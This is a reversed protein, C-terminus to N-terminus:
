LAPVLSLQIGLHNLLLLQAPALKRDRSQDDPVYRAPLVTLDDILERSEGVRYLADLDVATTGEVSQIAAIIEASTVGRDFQRKDFAFTQQLKHEIAALVQEALYRPDLLVRAEVNFLQRDYSNIRVQQIPDRALDIAQQLRQYLQSIPLIPAGEIGAITIHVLQTAGNWIASAQAKGIGSFGQAFDEFDQLSVIRDLTRVTPPAKTRADALREPNAAGTAALPNIVDTISQPRTKLINLQGPNLNGDLGLGSRYTATINEQGSPLRAGRLGDGFDIHTSGDDEIRIIYRKDQPTLPYLSRAEEWLVGEVRITLTSESGSANAAPLYTLPPKNLMFQQFPENGDGSGLVEEITEGHSAEAVNAQVAVTAPDYSYKLPMQLKLVPMKQDAPPAQILALESVLDADPNAPLLPFPQQKPTRLTGQIQKLPDKLTWNQYEFVTSSVTSQEVERAVSERAVSDRAVSDRAASERAVSVQSAYPPTVVQVIDNKQIPTTTLQDDSILIGIGGVMLSSSNLSDQDAPRLIAQIDTNTLHHNAPAWLEGQNISRFLGKQATGAWLTQGSEAMICRVDLDDLNTIIQQWRDGGDVSRFVGSGATSVYLIFPSNPPSSQGSETSAKSAATAEAIEAKTKSAIAIDTINLNSLGTEITFSSDAALDPEFPQDIRFVWQSAPSSSTEDDQEVPTTVVRRAQGRVNITDGAVLLSSFEGSSANPSWTVQVDESSLRGRGARIQTINEWSVGGDESRYLGNQLTGAFIQQKQEVAISQVDTHNLTTPKWQQQGISPNLHFQFLGGARTGVLLYDPHEAIALIDTYALGSQLSTWQADGRQWTFLGSATGAYWRSPTDATPALLTTVALPNPETPPTLGASLPQWTRGASTSLFAGATTGAIIDTGTHSAALSLVQTNELGTNNRGWRLPAELKGSNPTSFVGQETGVILASPLVALARGAAPALGADISEWVRALNEGSAPSTYKYIGQDTGAIIGSASPSQALSLIQRDRLDVTASWTGQAGSNFTFLYLGRATGVWLQ